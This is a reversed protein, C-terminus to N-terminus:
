SRSLFVQWMLEAGCLWQLLSLVDTEVASLLEGEEKGLTVPLSSTVALVM